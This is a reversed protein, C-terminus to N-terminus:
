LQSPFHKSRPVSQTKIKFSGSSRRLFNLTQLQFLREGFLYLGAYFEGSFV